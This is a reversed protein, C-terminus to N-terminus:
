APILRRLRTRLSRCGFLELLLVARKAKCIPPTGIVNGDVRGTAMRLLARIIYALLTQAALFAISKIEWRLGPQKERIYQAEQNQDHHLTLKLKNSELDRQTNSM